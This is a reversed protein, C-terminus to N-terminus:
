ISVKYVVTQLRCYSLMHALLDVLREYSKPLGEADKQLRSSSTVTSM